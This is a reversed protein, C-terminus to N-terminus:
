TRLNPHIHIQLFVMQQVEPARSPFELLAFQGRSSGPTSPQTPHLSLIAGLRSGEWGPQAGGPVPWSSPTGHAQSGQGWPSAGLVWTGM